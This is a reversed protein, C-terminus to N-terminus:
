KEDYSINMLKDKSLTINGLKDTRLITIDKSLYREMITKDPSEINDCTVVAIKPNIKNILEVSSSTNLGHHPIKMVDCKLIVGKQLMDKEELAECDALFAYSVNDIDAMIVLSNNNLINKDRKIPGVVKMNVNKDNVVYGNKIFQSSVKRDKLEKYLVNKMYSEYVPLSVKKTEIMSVIPILGGYHDIHYHTIIIEDIKKVGAGKLYSIVYPVSLDSGTDILYNKDYDKILICDSQLTKIFHVSCNPNAFIKTKLCLIFVLTFLFIKKKM